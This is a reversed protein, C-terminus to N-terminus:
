QKEITKIFKILRERDNEEPHEVVYDLASKLYRGIQDGEKTKLNEIIDNGTIKLDGTKFCRKIKKNNIEQNIKMVIKRIEDPRYPKKKLNASRDAIKIRLWDKWHINNDTFDKLLKRVTKPSTDSNISSMHMKVLSSVYKIEDNSFKLHRLEDGVIEAGINEHNKYSVLGSDEIKMSDPKGHDHYFAALRLLPNRKKISDGALNIHIDVTEDHKPGGDLGFCREFSPSIFKLAGTEHLSNFFLAPKETEMAKLLELRLREPACNDLLHANERAANLSDKDFSGQFKALFRCARVIRVPDDNIRDKASGNFRIIRNELDKLGCYEDIVSNNLPNYAMANITLDRRKLDDYVSLKKGTSSEGQYGAVEVGEIICIRFSVGVFALKKDKFIKKLDEEMADTVIDYDSPEINLLLDRAAGGAIFAEFGNNSLREVIEFATKKRNM